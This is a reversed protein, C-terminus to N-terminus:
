QVLKTNYAQVFLYVRVGTWEGHPPVAAPILAAAYPSRLPQLLKEQRLAEMEPSPNLVVSAETRRARAESIVRQLIKNKGSRWTSVKIGYKAEFAAVLRQSDREAM